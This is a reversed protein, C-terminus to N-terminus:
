KTRLHFICDPLIVHNKNFVFFVKTCLFIRFSDFDKHGNKPNMIVTWHFLNWLILLSKHSIELIERSNNWIEYQSEFFVTTLEDFLSIAKSRWLGKNTWACIVWLSLTLNWTIKINLILKMRGKEPFLNNWSQIQTIWFM